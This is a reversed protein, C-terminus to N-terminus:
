IDGALFLFCTLNLFTDLNRLHRCATSIDIKLIKAIEETPIKPKNDVIILLPDEDINSTPRSHPQNNLSLDYQRFRGVWKKVTRIIKKKDVEKWFEYIMVIHRFHSKEDDIKLANMQPCFTLM